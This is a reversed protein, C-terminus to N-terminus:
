TGYEWRVCDNGDDDEELRDEDYGDVDYDTVRVTVSSPVDSVDVVGGQVTINIQPKKIEGDCLLNWGLQELAEQAADEWNEAELEIRDNGDHDNSLIYM